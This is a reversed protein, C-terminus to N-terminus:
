RMHGNDDRVVTAAFGGKLPGYTFKKVKAICPVVPKGCGCRKKIIEVPAGPARVYFVVFNKVTQKPSILEAPWFLDFKATPDFTGPITASFWDGKRCVYYHPCEFPIAATSTYGLAATTSFEQAPLDVSETQGSKATDLGLPAGEPVFSTATPGGPATVDITKTVTVSSGSGHDDDWGYGDWHQKSTSAKFEL